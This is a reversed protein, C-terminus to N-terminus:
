PKRAASRRLTSISIVAATDAANADRPARAIDARGCGAGGDLEAAAIRGILSRLWRHGPDGDLHKHWQMGETLAPIEFPPPLVQLELHRAYFSALRRHVTAVRSTGCIFQPVSNFDDTILEIRRTHGYKRIFWEEFGPTLTKGFRIVVHGLQMFREFSLGDRVQANGAWVICAHESEFLNVKPHENDFLYEPMILIDIEGRHLKAGPDEELNSIEVTINPAERELQRAVRALLVTRVFDSACIRFHRHSTAHDFATRNIITSHVTQLVDRVRAGLELALPSPTMHRGHQVLLDDGFYDRLRSLIGSTASQSLNLRRAAATINGEALLADLAVLLNLDLQHFRISM